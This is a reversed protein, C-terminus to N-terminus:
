IGIGKKVGDKTKIQEDNIFSLLTQSQESNIVRLEDLYYYEYPEPSTLVTSSVVSLSVLGAFAASQEKNDVSPVVIGRLRNHSVTVTDHVPQDGFVAFTRFKFYEVIVGFVDYLAAANYAYFRFPASVLPFGITKHIIEGNAIYYVADGLRLIKFISLGRTWSASYSNILVSSVYTECILTMAGASDMDIRISAYNNADIRLMYNILTVTSLPFTAIRPIIVRIEGQVDDWTQNSEVGAVSGATAGTTLGLHASGTTVAGSGASIDTWKVLDLIGALFDDDWQTPNLGAGTIIFDNGGISPGRNPGFYDITAGYLISSGYLFTSYKAM